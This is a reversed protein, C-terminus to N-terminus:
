EFGEWARRYYDVLVPIMKTNVRIPYRPKLQNRGFVFSAQLLDPSVYDTKVPLNRMEGFRRRPRFAGTGASRSSRRAIYWGWDGSFTPVSAHYPVADLGAAKLTKGICLFAERAFFPSTAQLALLTDSKMRKNLARFFDLSYLKALELRGPDPFDMIVVDFTGQVNRVFGDADVHFLYVDAVHGRRPEGINHTRRASKQLLPVLRGPKLGGAPVLAVRADRLSGRNLRTMAPHTAAIRTVAPDIDVLVVERVEPYKLVERVALGDGGGLVLVRKRRSALSMPVHVLFDHYIHEDLSSFQLNGNLYMNLRPGRNTLVVHQYKTTQRFIIPDRYYRQELYRTWDNAFILGLVLAPFLLLMGGIIARRFKLLHRFYLFGVLAICLNTIGLLFGIRALSVRTLLVYTFLFAGLLSGIYDVSLIESLNTRLSASYENNIRILIPIEMGICTGILFAFGYLIIEFSEWYSFAAYIALASFGGLAGLILELWLFADMLNSSINRQVLAGVGMAFLMLGIIIFIQEHSTGMINNGLVSLVYEYILGCAGMVLMSLILIFRSIAPKLSLVATNERNSDTSM